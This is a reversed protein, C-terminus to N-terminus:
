AKQKSLKELEAQKPPIASVIIKYKSELTEIGQFEDHFLELEVMNAEISDILESLKSDRHEGSLTKISDIQTNDTAFIFLMDIANKYSIYNNYNNVLIAGLGEMERIDDKASIKAWQTPDIFNHGEELTIYDLTIQAQTNNFVNVM